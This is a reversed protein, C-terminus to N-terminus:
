LWRCPMTRFVHCMQSVATCRWGPPYRYTYHWHRRKLPSFNQQRRRTTWLISCAVQMTQFCQERSTPTRRPPFHWVWTNCTVPPMQRGARCTHCVHTRAKKQVKRLEDLTQQKKWTGQCKGGQKSEAALETQSINLVQSEPTLWHSDVRYTSARVRQKRMLSSPHCSYRGAEPTDHPSIPYSM